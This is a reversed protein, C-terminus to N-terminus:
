KFSQLGSVSSFSIFVNWYYLLDADDDYHHLIAANKVAIIDDCTNFVNIM